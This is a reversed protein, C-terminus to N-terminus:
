LRIRIISCASFTQVIPLLRVKVNQKFSIPVTRREGRFDHKPNIGFLYNIVEADYGMSTLKRYLACCQLEAGYNNVNLITLIGIKM